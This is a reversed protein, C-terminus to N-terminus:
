DREKRSLLLKSIEKHVTEYYKLTNVLVKNDESFVYENTKDEADKAIFEGSNVYKLFEAAHQEVEVREKDMILQIRAMASSMRRMEDIFASRFGPSSGYQELFRDPDENFREHMSAMVRVPNAKEEPWKSHKCRQSMKLLRHSMSAAYGIFDLDSVQMLDTYPESAREILVHYKKKEDPMLKTFNERHEKKEIEPLLIPVTLKNYDVRAKGGKGRRTMMASIRAVNQYTNDVGSLMCMFGCSGPTITSDQSEDSVIFKAGAELLQSTIIEM